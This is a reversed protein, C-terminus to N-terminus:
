YVVSIANYDQMHTIVNLLRYIFTCYDDIFVTHMLQKLWVHLLISFYNWSPNMEKCIFKNTTYRYLMKKENLTMVFLM